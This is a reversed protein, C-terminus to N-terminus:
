KPVPMKLLYANADPLQRVRPGCALGLLEGNNSVALSYIPGLPLQEGHLFKGDSLNWVALYGSNKPANGASIIKQGDPSLRVSYIWGPHAPPPTPLGAPAPTNPNILERVVSGDAVNWVKLTHDSSGSVLFKSDPTLAVCFVGDRHGKDFEKEKYPKFERVMNGNAADWLKISRDLSGSVLQKSDSSWVVCYVPSPAPTTHAKIERVQTGKAVDWIRVTGDHGGTALLTNDHNFAVADVLNPHALNKIPADSALKWKRVKKDAGSSYFRTDSEFAIDTIGADHAFAPGPKGFDPPNPQGPTFVVNWSLLSKDACGAALMQNNPSFALKQVPAPCKFEAIQKGDAFTYLRVIQDAAGVAVLNGNKSVAVAHVPATAGAFSRPEKAGNATTWLRVEKDDSTLVHSGNPTIALARIPSGAAQLSRVLSVTQITVSKDASGCVIASNNNHFAIADVTGALTFAQFEKGTTLDWVRARGDAAGTVLKSKDVSFSFSKVPGPHNLALVEKGDAANWIKVANGFAAGIQTFDRNYTASIIPEAVPGLTQAVAPAQGAPLNWLKVTKDAGATLAQTGNSHYAVSTTGGAHADVVYAVPIDQLRAHKDDGVSVLTRNDGLFALSHVKGPNDSGILLKGNALDYLATRSAPQAAYSVALRTGNPSLAMKEAAGALAITMTPQDLPGGPMTPVMLWVKVRSDAGASVIKTGDHSIAVGTVAGEHAALSRFLTGDAANWVKVSKDDGASIVIDGKANFSVHRVAGAHEGQWLLSPTWLRASKDASATAIRKGDPFFSVATVPGEHSFFEILKGNGSYIRAFNDAGGVLVQSGDANWALGRVEAPTDITAVLKNDALTFIKVAKGAGGVAVRGGDKTISLSTVPSGYDLKAKSMGDAVNWVHISGDNGASLILDGKPSYAVANVPGTHGALKKIETGQAVDFLRIVNDGCGAAIVSPPTSGPPAFAVSQVPAPLDAIKRLEKGDAANWVMLSKDAGGAAVQTADHNFAVSHIALGMAPFTREVNGNGLNWLRVQKDVCGTLLKTGDPSIAACTAQDPHALVKPPADPIKWFKITGDPGASVAMTGAANVSLSTVGAAHAGIVSKEKGTAQDWFRITQDGGASALIQGNANIATATAPGSHGVFQREVTNNALNWIRVIKDGGGTILRQSDPSVTASLVAEPHALARPSTPPLTWVKMSGDSGVTLMQTNQPHIAVGTVPGAHAVIQHILKGDAANWLALHDNATGAAMFTPSMAMSQIPGAAGAFERIPKGDAFNSVRILKDAGATAVQNGDPSLAVATVRDAHATLARPQPVPLQWFKLTGDDATSYAAPATPHLVLGTIPSVPANVVAIPKGDAPNWYRITGDSGGSVLSQANMAVANVPGAHGALSLAQKGDASSWVTITGNKGAGVVRQGDPSMALGNVVDAATLEQAFGVGPVDWIKATNDSGGSAMMQGDPSFATCLVLNQHGATGGFTKVEKGTTTEWLKLMKDFSGTLVYKGDPSFAIAYLTETHGKLTAVVGPHPAPEDPPLSEVLSAFSCIGLLAIVPRVWFASLM